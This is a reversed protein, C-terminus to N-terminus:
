QRSLSCSKPLGTPLGRSSSTLIGADCCLLPRAYKCARVVSQRNLDVSSCKLLYSLGLWAKRVAERLKNYCATQIKAFFHLHTNLGVLTRYLVTSPGYYVKSQASPPRPKRRRALQSGQKATIWQEFTRMLQRM